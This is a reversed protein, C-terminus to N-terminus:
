LVLTMLNIDAISLGELTLSDGGGLDIVLNGGSLSAAATVDAASTFDTTTEDLQLTDDAVSFDTVTDDGHGASFVFLDDGSGGTFRDDGAGGWLTDNGAGGDVTDTGAGSFLNDNGAGGTVMDNGAGGFVTDGGAGGHLVDNLGTDGADRGGYIIDDGGGAEITDDGIGGGLVDDGAAAVVLDDGGGSWIRDEGTGSTIAEGEDYRGNDSVNDDWGGGLLTDDGAGGFLTDNGDDSASGNESVLQRTAGDDLGGGILLDDGASGGMVDDGAGGASVDDGADGAGAWLTDNGDGGVAVDDGAGGVVLDAGEGGSLVDDGGNGRLEDSGGGGEITDGFVTGSISDDNGNPDDAAKVVLPAAVANITIVSTSAGEGEFFTLTGTGPQLSGISNGIIADFDGDNDIDAIAPALDFDLDVGNFPNASGTTQVFSPNSVTGDNRFYFMPGYGEGMFVDTDGDGDYDLFQMRPVFGIDVGNFPNGSGEVAKFIPNTNTGENLFYRVTGLYEGIFADMDGDNDLDAFKPAAYSGVDIGTLPNGSGDVRSFSPDSATGNNRFFDVTGGRTGVFVDLDGDADIDVFAPTAMAVDVLQLPNGAGGVEVFVPDSASGDNRFYDITGSFNGVFVDLDGDNDLDVFTPAPFNGVQQGSFPDGSGAIRTFSASNGLGNGAGDTIQISLTRSEFSTDTPVTIQLSQLVEEVANETANGNLSIRVTSGNTSTLTGIQVGAFSVAGTATSFGVQGAGTGENLVTITDGVALGSLIISGGNLNGQVDTFTLETDIFSTVGRDITLSSDLGTLQPM